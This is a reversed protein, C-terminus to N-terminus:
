GSEHDSPAPDLAVSISGDRELTASRLRRLDDVGKQRAAEAVDRPSVGAHQMARPNLTGDARTLQVPAGTLWRSVARSRASLHALLWYVTLLASTATVTPIFRANGTLARSLNSGVIISVVIDLPTQKGFARRGLGRIMVLGLALVCAARACMQWWEITKADTGLIGHLSTYWSM